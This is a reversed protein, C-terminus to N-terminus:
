AVKTEKEDEFVDPLLGNVGFTSEPELVMIFEEEIEIMGKVASSRIGKELSPSAQLANSDSEFVEIVEDVLIGCLIQDNEVALELVIICTEKKIETAPLGFKKCTDIVPLVKGRLNIVGKMYDEAKPVMTIKPIELIEIVYGVEIAFYEKQLMFSLYSHRVIEKDTSTEENQSM